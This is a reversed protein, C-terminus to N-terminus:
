SANVLNHYNLIKVTKLDYTIFYTYVYPHM